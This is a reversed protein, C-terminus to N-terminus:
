LICLRHQKHLPITPECIDYTSQSIMKISAITIVIISARCPDSLHHHHHHHYNITITATTISPSPSPRSQHDHHAVAYCVRQEGLTTYDCGGFVVVDKRQSVDKQIKQDGFHDTALQCAASAQEVHRIAAGQIGGHSVPQHRPPVIVTNTTHRMSPTNSTNVLM